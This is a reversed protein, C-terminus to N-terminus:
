RIPRMRCRRTPETMNTIRAACRCRSGVARRSSSRRRGSRSISSSRNAPRSRGNRTTRIGHVIRCHSRRISSATRPACGASGSRCGRITRASLCWRRATRISCGCCWSCIPTPPTRRSSCSAAVPGTIETANTLPPTSFTLGDGGTAYRLTGDATAPEGRLSLDPHLHFRTWQTRALPWENEARAVFTEGPHRVNLLVKPQQQWGNDEGKLFHDFFRKQLDQGYKAYFLTFHTDGHVELWKQQSGARGFGEFNGRPHLGMGGWNAASLLPTEIDEFKPLRARHYDDILWHRLANGDCDARNRALEADSLTEPGAVPEGTM